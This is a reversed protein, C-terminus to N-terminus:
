NVMNEYVKVQIIISIKNLFDFLFVIYQYSNVTEGCKQEISKLFEFTKFLLIIERKISGLVLTIEEIYQMSLNRVEIRKEISEIIKGINGLFVLHEM